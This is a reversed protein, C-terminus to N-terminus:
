DNEELYEKAEKTLDFDTNDLAWRIYKPDDEIVTGILEGKYKGFPMRDLVTYAKAM